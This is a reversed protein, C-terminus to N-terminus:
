VINVTRGRNDLQLFEPDSGQKRLAQAMQKGTISVVTDKNKQFAEVVPTRRSYTTDQAAATANLVL